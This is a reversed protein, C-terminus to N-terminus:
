QRDLELAARRFRQGSEYCDIPLPELTKGHERDSTDIKAVIVCPGPKAFARDLAVKAEKIDTVTVAHEIGSSAAIRAIDTGTTTASTAMGSGTTLYRGNDFVLIILNAPRYRAVTILSTLGMLMSGDGEMAVVKMSPRGLAVGLAASTTYAMDM